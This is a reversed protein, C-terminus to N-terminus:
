RATNLISGGARQLTTTASGDIYLHVGSASGSGDYTATVMRWRGDGRITSEVLLLPTGARILRVCAAADTPRGAAM